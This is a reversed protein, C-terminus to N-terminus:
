IKLKVHLKGFVWTIGIVIFAFCLCSVLGTFGHTLRDPLIFGTIDSLGYLIYPIMYTTLTATGAPRIINFWGTLNHSELYRLITYVAVSIATIYFLWVPTEGLKAVIWFRHAGIGALLFLLATGLGASLKWKGSKGACRASLISLIMGGTALAPMCGNGIHLVNLMGSYFNPEPFDLIPKGGFAERLPTGLVCIIVFVVWATILYKLRDRSFFYILACVLYTWGIIGLIGWWRTSFVGGEPDRFTFALFLLAAAGIIRFAIFLYKRTNSSPKPYSNWVGIFGAAMILWYVGTPYPAEPSLRAESNVIFVGMVLLAFTRSLIHGLTSEATYGKAYRREIAYPISMGMAFMFCPFVIDALGMFDEGWAAHGLWHPVDHVTWLDNVFIMTFMTLARLMDIALNRQQFITNNSMAYQKCRPQGQIAGPM